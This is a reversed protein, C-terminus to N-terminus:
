TRSPRGHSEGKDRECMHTRANMSLLSRPGAVGKPRITTNGPWTTTNVVLEFTQERFAAYTMSDMRGDRRLAERYLVPMILAEFTDHLQAAAISCIAARETYAPSIQVGGSRRTHM